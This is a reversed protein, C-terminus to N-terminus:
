RKRGKSDRKSPGQIERVDRSNLMLVGNKFRGVAPGGVFGGKGTRARGRTTITKKEKELVIGSEKAERRRRKERDAAKRAMGKRIDMPVNEQAYISSRSGLAQFRLDLAKHRKKGALKLDSPVSTTM